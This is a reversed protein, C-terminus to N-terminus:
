KGALLFEGNVLINVLGPPAVIEEVFGALKTEVLKRNKLKLSIDLSKEQLSRIESSISGIHVQFGSLLSGIQSLIVDCDHIQDHLLVLNDSDEVYDQILAKEVHGLNGEVMTARDRQKEGSTLISILVDYDKHEELEEELGDLSIDESESYEDFSFLGGFHEEIQQDHVGDM